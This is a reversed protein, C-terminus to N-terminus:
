SPNDLCFGNHPLHLFLNHNSTLSLRLQNISIHTSHYYSHYSSHTSQSHTISSPQTFQSLIPNEYQETEKEQQHYYVVEASSNVSRQRRQLCIILRKKQYTQVKYIITEINQRTLYIFRERSSIRIKVFGM